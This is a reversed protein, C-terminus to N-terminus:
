KVAVAVEAKIGEGEGLWWVRLAGWEVVRAHTALTGGISPATQRLSATIAAVTSTTSM